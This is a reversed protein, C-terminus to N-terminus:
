VTEKQGPEHTIIFVHEHERRVYEMRNVNTFHNLKTGEYRQNGTAKYGETILLAHIKRDIDTLDTAKMETFISQTKEKTKM